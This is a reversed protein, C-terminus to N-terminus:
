RWSRRRAGSKALWEQLLVYREHQGLRSKLALLITIAILCVRTIRIATMGDTFDAMPPPPPLLVSTVGVVVLLLQVTLRIVEQYVNNRAVILRLGNVRKSKLLQLDTFVHWLGSVNEGSGVLAILLQLQEIPYAHDLWRM